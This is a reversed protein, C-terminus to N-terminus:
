RWFRRELDLDKEKKYKKGKENFETGLRTKM